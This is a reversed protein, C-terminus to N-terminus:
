YTLKNPFDEKMRGRHQWPDLWFKPNERNGILHRAIYEAEKRSIYEELEM